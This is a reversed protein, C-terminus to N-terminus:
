TRLGAAPNVQRGGSTADSHIDLLSPAAVMWKHCGFLKRGGLCVLLSLHFLFSNKELARLRALPLEPTQEFDHALEQGAKPHEM